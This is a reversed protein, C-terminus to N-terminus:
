VVPQVLSLKELHTKVEQETTGSKLLRIANTKLICFLAYQRKDEPLNRYVEGAIINATKFRNASKRSNAYCAKTKFQKSTLSSKSRVYGKGEMRYFVLNDINGTIINNSIQKAM